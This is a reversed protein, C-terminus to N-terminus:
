HMVITSLISSKYEEGTHCHRRYSPYKDSKTYTNEYVHYIDNVGLMELKLRVYASLDFM